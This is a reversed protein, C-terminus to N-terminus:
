PSVSAKPAAWQPICETHDTNSVYHANQKACAEATKVSGYTCTGVECLISFAILAVLKIVYSWVVETEALDKTREDM